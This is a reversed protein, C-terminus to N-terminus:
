ACGSKFAGERAQIERQMWSKYAHHRDYVVKTNHKDLGETVLQWLYRNKVEQGSMNRWQNAQWKKPLGSSISSAIHVNDTYITIDSPKRFRQLAYFLASLTMQNFTKNDLHKFGEVTITEEKGAKFVKTELVYACWGSIAKPGRVNTGLYINVEM